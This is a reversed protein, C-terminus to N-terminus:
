ASQLVHVIEAAARFLTPSSSHALGRAQEALRAPEAAPPKLSLQCHRLRLPVGALAHGIRPLRERLARLAEPKDASFQLLLGHRWQLIMQLWYGELSLGVCLCLGTMEAALGGKGAHDDAVDENFGPWLRGQPIVLRLLLAQAHWGQLHFSLPQLLAQLEARMSDMAVDLGTNGTARLVEGLVRARWQAALSAPLTLSPQAQLKQLWAQDERMAPSETATPPPASEINATIAASSQRAVLQLLLQQALATPNPLVRMVLTDGAYGLGAPLRLTLGNPGDALWDGDQRPDQRMLLLHLLEGPRPMASGGASSPMAAAAAVASVPSLSPIASM